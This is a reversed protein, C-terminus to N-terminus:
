HVSRSEVDLPRTAFDAKIAEHSEGAAIRDHYELMRNRYRNEPTDARKAKILEATALIKDDLEETMRRREEPTAKHWAQEWETHHGVQLGGTLEVHQTSRGDVRDAFERFAQVNGRFVESMLKEAAIQFYSKLTEPDIEGAIAALMEAIVRSKPRGDPNGSQGPKFRTAVGFEKIRPNGHRRKKTNVNGRL